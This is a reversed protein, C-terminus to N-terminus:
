GEPYLPAKGETLNIGLAKMLKAINAASLGRRGSLYASLTSRPIGAREATETVTFYENKIAATIAARLPDTM